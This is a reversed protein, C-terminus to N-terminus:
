VIHLDQDPDEVKGASRTRWLFLLGAFAAALVVGVVILVGALGLSGLLVDSLGEL